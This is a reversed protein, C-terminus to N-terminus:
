PSFPSSRHDDLRELLTSFGIIFPKEVGTTM